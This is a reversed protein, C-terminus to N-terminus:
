SWYIWSSGNGMARDFWAHPGSHNKRLECRVGRAPHAYTCDIYGSPVRGALLDIEDVSRTETAAPTEPEVYDDLDLNSFRNKQDKAV